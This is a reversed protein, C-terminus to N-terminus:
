VAETEGTAGMDNQNGAYRKRADELEAGLRRLAAEVEPGSARSEIAARLETSLSAIEAEIDRAPRLEVLRQELDRVETLEEGLRRLQAEIGGIANMAMNINKLYVTLTTIEDQIASATRLACRPVEPVGEVNLAAEPKAATEKQLRGM